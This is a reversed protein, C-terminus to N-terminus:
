KEDASRNTNSTSSASIIQATLAAAKASTPAEKALQRMLEVSKPDTLIRAMEATDKGFRFKDYADAVVSMIRNPSAAYAPIAGLGAGSLEGEIRLNQATQSGPAHRKGQAEMVELMRNFGNWTQKDSVSEVLAQLNEKQRPNGAIQSAFKPGGWQNAGASLKQASEDFIAQINQRVFDRAAGPDQKSITEVTSRITVPNLARPAQPMLIQGQAAMAQEAPIGKTAAIDGVPSQQMPNVVERRNEAVIARAKAYQDSAADGVFKAASSANVANSALENEGRLRASGAIDDLYKKAADIAAVSNPPKGFASSLPDRIVKSIADNLGSEFVTASAQAPSLIKEGAAEYYPRARTNGEQRAITIAKEAAEQLRVPTRSPSQPYPAVRDLQQEVAARTAGPRANMTPQIIPGGKQSSEVVRQIDQLTNKGTVQAIAEAGTLPTGAKAADDMLGQAQKLQQESIGSIAKEINQAPVSRLIFPLAGAGAGLMQFVAIAIPNETVTRAAEGAVGASAGMVGKQVLSGPGSVLTQATLDAIRGPGTQPRYVPKGTVLKSIEDYGKEVVGGLRPLGIIDQIPRKDNPDFGVARDMADLVRSPGVKSYLKQAGVDVLDGLAQPLGVLGASARSVAGPISKVIDMGVSPKKPAGKAFQELAFSEVETPQTGEPVEFRAISGDPLQVRAVPM